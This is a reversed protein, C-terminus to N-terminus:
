IAFILSVTYALVGSLASASVPIIISDLKSELHQM